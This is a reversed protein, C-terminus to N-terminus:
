LLGEAKAQEYDVIIYEATFDEADPWLEFEEGTISEELTIKQLEGQRTFDYAITAEVVDSVIEVLEGEEDDGSSGEIYFDLQAYGYEIVQPKVKYEIRYIFRSKIEEQFSLDDNLSERFKRCSDVVAAYWPRQDKIDKWSFASLLRVRADALIRQQIGSNGSFLSEFMYFYVTHYFNFKDSSM